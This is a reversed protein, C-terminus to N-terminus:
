RELFIDIQVIYNRLNIQDFPLFKCIFQDDDAPPECYNVHRIKRKPYRGETTTTPEVVPESADTGSSGSASGSSAGNHGSSASSGCGEQVLRNNMAIAYTIRSDTAASDTQNDEDSSLVENDNNLTTPLLHPRQRVFQKGNSKASTSSQPSKGDKKKPKHKSPSSPVKKSTRKSPSSPVKKSTHKPKSKKM